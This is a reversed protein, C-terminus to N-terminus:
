TRNLLQLMLVRQRPVGLFVSKIAALLGYWYVENREGRQVPGATVQDRPRRPLVEGGGAADAHGPAM